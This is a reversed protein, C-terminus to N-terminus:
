EWTEKIFVFLFMTILAPSFFLCGKILKTFVMEKKTKFTYCYHYFLIPFTFFFSAEHMLLTFISLAHMAILSGVKQNKTYQHYLHFIEWTILIAIFDRRIHYPYLGMLSVVFFPALLLMYSWGEKNFLRILLKFLILFAVSMIVIVVTQLSYPHWQYIKLLIEGIIGRRVFGGEYNIMWDSFEFGHYNFDNLQFCWFFHFCLWAAWLGFLCRFITTQHRKM